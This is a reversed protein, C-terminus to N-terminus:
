GHGGLNNDAVSHGDDTGDLMTRRYGTAVDVLILRRVATALQNQAALELSSDTIITDAEELRAVSQHRRHGM